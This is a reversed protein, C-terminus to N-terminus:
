TLWTGLEGARTADPAGRRGRGGGRHHRAAEGGAPRPRRALRGCPPCVVREGPMTGEVVVAVPTAAGPRRDILAAAIAPANEVAMLLVVTGGPAGVGVLDGAVRSTRAAPARLGGHVRPRGRPPHGPDRARGAGRDASTLGPVVTVPVGAGRCALVEEFGRGFVFGDGGKFRVVRKGARARDISSATSRSRRPRAAGRCSPSTSSSSTPLCSTSSSARPWGIRWSSTPPPSRTGPRWPRRARPRGSRRRGPGRRPHPRARASADLAGTACRRWSTTACRRRSGRSGTAWCPSRSATTAASPRPGPAAGRPRRRGARLLGAAGRGGGGGRANVEPHDTAAVVYWADDLDDPRFGRRVWTLEGCGHGELAPTVEPSVVVVDAGAALLAPVRRQAVNGGGVVVVRRGALRLGSPTRRTHRPRCRSMTSPRLDLAGVITRAM